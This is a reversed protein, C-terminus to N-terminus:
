PATKISQLESTISYFSSKMYLKAYGDIAVNESIWIELKSTKKNKGEIHLVDFTGAPVTIKTKESRTVEVKSDEPNGEQGNRIIKLLSGDKKSYLKEIVENHSSVHMEEKVWFGEATESAVVKTMTGKGLMGASVVYTTQDGVKWTNPTTLAILDEISSLETLNAFSQLSFFLVFFSILHKM